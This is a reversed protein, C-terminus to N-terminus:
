CLKICCESGAQKTRIKQRHLTYPIEKIMIHNQKKVLIELLIKFGQSNIKTDKMIDRPFAFFGSMPDKVCKVKLGHRAIITASLSLILRGVPMGSISGGKTYRSGVVVRNPEQKLESIITPILQLHILFIQM